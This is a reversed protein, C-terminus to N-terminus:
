DFASDLYKPCEKATHIFTQKPYKSKCIALANDGFGKESVCTMFSSSPVKRTQEATSKNEETFDVYAPALSSDNPAASRKLTIKSNNNNNDNPAQSDKADQSYGMEMRNKVTDCTEEGQNSSPVTRALTEHEFGTMKIVFHSTVSTETCDRVNDDGSCGTIDANTYGDHGTGMSAHSFDGNKPPFEQWAAEYALAWVAHGNNDIKYFAEHLSCHVRALQKCGNPLDVQMVIIM